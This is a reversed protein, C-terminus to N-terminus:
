RGMVHIPVMMTLMSEYHASGFVRYRATAHSFPMGCSTGPVVIAGTKPGMLPTMVWWADGRLPHLVRLGM